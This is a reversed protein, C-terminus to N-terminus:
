QEDSWKLPYSEYAARFNDAAREVHHTLLDINLRRYDANSGVEDIAAKLRKSADRLSAYSSLLPDCLELRNAAEAPSLKELAKGCDFEIRPAAERSLVVAESWAHRPHELKTSGCGLAVVAVTALLIRSAGSLREVRVVPTAGGGLAVSEGVRLAAVAELTDSDEENDRAFARASTEWEKGTDLEVCRLRGSGKNRDSRKAVKTM